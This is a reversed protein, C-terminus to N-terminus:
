RSVISEQNTEYKLIDGNVILLKVGKKTATGQLSMRHAVVLIMWKILLSQNGHTSDCVFNGELCHM